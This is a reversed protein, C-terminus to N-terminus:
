LFPSYLSLLTHAVLLNIKTIDLFQDVEDLYHRLTAEADGVAAEALTDRLAILTAICTELRESVFCCYSVNATGFERVSLELFRDLEEFFTHWGWLEIEEEEM